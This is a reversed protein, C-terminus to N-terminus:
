QESPGFILRCKSLDDIQLNSSFSFQGWNREKGTKGLQNSWDVGVKIGKVRQFRGGVVTFLPSNRMEFCQDVGKFRQLSYSYKDYM